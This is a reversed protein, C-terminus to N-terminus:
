WLMLDQVAIFPDPQKGIVRVRISKVKKGITASGIGYTFDSVKTFDGGNESIELAGNTLIYRSIPAIGTRVELKNLFTPEKLEFTIYDGDKPAEASTISTNRNWDTLNALPSKSEDVRLSTSVSIEPETYESKRLIFCGQSDASDKAHMELKLKYSGESPMNGIAFHYYPRGNRGGATALHGDSAITENNCIISANRVEIAKIGKTPRLELQWYGNSYLVDTIPYEVTKWETGITSADWSAFPQPEAGAVTNSSLTDSFYVKTRLLEPTSCSFPQSYLPSTSSPETGDTTYRIKAGAYPEGVVVVGKSFAASAPPVRFKIGMNALRDFHYSTIRQNFDTWQRQAQPTWGVEAIACIRPYSQYEVYRSPQDLFESWLAAQVGFIRSNEEASLQQNNLPDFSYVKELSVIGAWWHGREGRAQAMDFYCYPGPIMVVPHGKQAAEIGADIGTWAMVGTESDLNGGELIENWGLMKKGKQTIITQIRKIFYNQIQDVSTMGKEKMLQQDRQCSSWYNKNVEDGGIHIYAFPFLKAVEGFIDDLMKFNEERGACWVNQKEGQVSKSTDGSQCLTEPYSATVARSHGPIDLEPLIDVHREAAYRVIEKIEKQTYYGGFRNNGSGFSPQLVENPGRWAGKKTLLPYKKIEIRWGQDDTLHWHFINIKHAALWDIYLKVFNASFFQRSCDLMMGRWGFRPYDKIDAQGVSWTIGNQKTSQYIQAPLLQRLTQCGWYLGAADTGTISIGKSDAHLQYGEAPLGIGKDISLRISNSKEKTALKLSYGTAPKLMKQLKKAEEKAEKTCFITTKENITFSEAGYTASVPLPVLAKQPQAKLSLGGALLTATCIGAIVSWRKLPTYFSEKIDRM